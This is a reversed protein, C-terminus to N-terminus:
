QEETQRLTVSVSLAGVSGIAEYIEERFTLVPKITFTGAEKGTLDITLVVDADEISNILNAPGRLRVKVVESILDYEMGEPVNIAHIETLTVERTALGIFSITVKAETIGSENTAGEPLTIPYTLETDAEIAALDIAPLTIKEITALLADSGSIRIVQPQIDINTTEETAGGGYTTPLVLPIEKYRRIQLDLHVEAVNTTVYAVDVPNGEADCLTYRYSESLSETRGELDVEIRAHDVKEMVSAPGAATIAAYDLVSSELDTIYGEPVAGSYVVNVPIDDRTQRREVTVTINSPSRREVTFADNPVDGPYAISYNLQLTGPDYVKTLDVKLTIDKGNNLKKHDARNGTLMLSVTADKGSTIMLGRDTLATEGEFIVSIGSYSDTSESSVMTVVYLWLSLALVLSLFVSFAKSKIM